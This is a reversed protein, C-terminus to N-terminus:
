GEYVEVRNKGGRKARYMAADANNVLEDITSADLPFESVGISITPCHAFLGKTEKLDEVGKRIREAIVCSDNKGTHPLIVAFEEGGYRVVVDMSRVAERISRSVRRLIEDGALHGYRDNFAKFNDVDIMFTSFREDHRKVREAEEFLRERFFRRNFLGTLPDTMSITKLEESMTYYAGRELAITAYNSFSLLLLLDEDTFVEGSLKDSVNLVGIVRDELKLPLSIFSKTRYKPMGKRWPVERDIDRVVLPIGRAATSGCIGEGVRVKVHNAISKEMGKSAKISLVKGDNDLIMLSGREARLLDTSKGLIREYLVERDLVPAISKYVDLLAYFGDIWEAEGRVVRPHEAEKGARLPKVASVGGAVGVGGAVEAVGPVGASRAARDEMGLSTAYLSKLFPVALNNMIEPLTFIASRPITNLRKKLGELLAGDIDLHKSGSIFEGTEGNQLYARGGIIVFTTEPDLNVPVAFVYQNTHCKFVRTKQERTVQVAAKMYQQRCLNRGEETANVADCVSRTKGSPVVVNGSGDYLEISIDLLNSLGEQFDRWLMLDIRGRADKSASKVGM